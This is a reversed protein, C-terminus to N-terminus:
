EKMKSSIECIHGPLAVHVVQHSIAAGLVRGNNAVRVRFIDPCREDAADKGVYRNTHETYRYQINRTLSIYTKKVSTCKDTYGPRTSHLHPLCHPLNVVCPIRHDCVLHMPVYKSVVM